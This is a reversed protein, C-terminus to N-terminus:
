ALLEPTLLTRADVARPAIGPLQGLPSSQIAACGASLILLAVLGARRPASNCLYGTMAACTRLTTNM